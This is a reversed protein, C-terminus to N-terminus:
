PRNALLTNRYEDKALTEFLFQSRVTRGNLPMPVREYSGDSKLIWGKVNDAFSNALVVERIYRKLIPDRIPFALEYRAYFNRPMWDASSLFVKKAGGARFYYIRSHELFRDVVSMVRINESM